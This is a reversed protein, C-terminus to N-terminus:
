YNITCLCVMLADDEATAFTWIAWFLNFGSPAEVAAGGVLWSARLLAPLSAVVVSGLPASGRDRVSVPSVVSYGELSEGVEPSPEVVGSVFVLRPSVVLVAVVAWVVLVGVVLLVAVVLVAGTLFVLGDGCGLCCSM